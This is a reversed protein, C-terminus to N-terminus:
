ATIYLSDWGNSERWVLRWIFMPYQHAAWYLRTLGDRRNQIFKGKVEIIEIEHRRDTGIRWVLFDPKYRKHPSLQFSLPEYKWERIEGAKQQLALYQAYDAETKSRYPVSARDGVQKGILLEARTRMRARDGTLVLASEDFLRKM